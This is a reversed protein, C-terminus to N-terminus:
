LYNDAERRYTRLRFVTANDESSQGEPAIAIDYIGAPVRESNLFLTVYRRDDPALDSVSAIVKPGDTRVASITARYHSASEDDPLIRLRIAGPESPLEIEQDVTADSRLRLLEYEGAVPLVSRFSGSVEAISVGLTAPRSVFYVAGVLTATVAVLVIAAQRWFTARPTAPQTLLVDLQGSEKLSQLGEKFRAAAEIEENIEPHALWYAEFADREADSLQDALYRAIVHHNAIYERDMILRGNTAM